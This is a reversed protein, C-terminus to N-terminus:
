IRWGPKLHWPFTQGTEKQPQSAVLAIKFLDKAETLASM